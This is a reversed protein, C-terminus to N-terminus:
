KREDFRALNKFVLVSSENFQKITGCLRKFYRVFFLQIIFSPFNELMKM